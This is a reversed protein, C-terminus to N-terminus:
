LGSLFTNVETTWQSKYNKLYNEHGALPFTVLQKKGKLNNFISDTEERSVRNDKEGYMLLVPCTVAKAYEEPNHNFAWFGNQMGGWFVLLGAMPFTPAGMIRFRASVTKYMSCLPM